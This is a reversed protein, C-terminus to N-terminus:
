SAFYQRIIENDSKMLGQYSGYYVQKGGDIFLVKQGLKAITSIDHTITIVTATNNKIIQTMYYLTEEATIPDLGSTPEDFILYDPKYVLARAIGIRKRMGGSLEAPYKELTDALGVLELSESVRSMIQQENKEGREYLPLAVNQFITFSDLLAAHQFVMAFRKKLRDLEPKTCDYIDCGDIIISGEDPPYIGLISKILVTKGSGSKGLIVLNESFPLVFDLGSLIEQGALSISLKKVAIM